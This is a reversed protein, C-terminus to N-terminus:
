LCSAYEYAIEVNRYNETCGYKPKLQYLESTIEKRDKLFYQYNKLFHLSAVLELKDVDDCKEFKKNELINRIKDIINVLEKSYNGENIKAQKTDILQILKIKKNLEYSFPGYIDWVFRYNGCSIGMENILYILKQMIVRDNFNSIDIERRFVSFFITALIDQEKIM